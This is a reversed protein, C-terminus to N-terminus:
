VEIQWLDQDSFDGQQWLQMFSLGLEPHIFDPVLEALPKLVFAYRTIEGRPIDWHDDHRVLDGYLLLDLDMTRSTFREEGRKRGCDQEIQNLKKDLDTLPLETDFGVVLNFFNDGEFGVAVSEYVPSLEIPSFFTNIAELAMAVYKRPQQNSGISIYVQTM